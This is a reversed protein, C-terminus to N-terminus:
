GGKSLITGMQVTHLTKNQPKTKIKVVLAHQVFKIGPHRCRNRMIQTTFLVKPLIKVTITKFNLLCKHKM